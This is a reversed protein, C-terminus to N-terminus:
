NIANKSKSFMPKGKRFDINSQGKVAVASKLGDVEHGGVGAAKTNAPADTTKVNGQGLKEFRGWGFGQNEKENEKRKM